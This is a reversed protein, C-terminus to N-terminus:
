GDSLQLGLEIILKVEGSFILAGPTQIKLSYVRPSDSVITAHHGSYGQVGDRFMRSPSPDGLLDVDITNPQRDWRVSFRPLGSQLPEISFLELLGTENSTAADSASLRYGPDITHTEVEIDKAGKARLPLKAFSEKKM